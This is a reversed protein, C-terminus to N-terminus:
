SDTDGAAADSRVVELDDVMILGRIENDALRITAAVFIELVGPGEVCFQGEEIAIISTDSDDDSM